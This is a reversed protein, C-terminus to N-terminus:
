CPTKVGNNAGGLHSTKICILEGDKDRAVWAEIEIM